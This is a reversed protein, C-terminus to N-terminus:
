KKDESKAAKERGSMAIDSESVAAFNVRFLAM